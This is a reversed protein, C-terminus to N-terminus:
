NESKDLGSNAEKYYPDIWNFELISFLYLVKLVAVKGAETSQTELPATVATLFWPCHPDQQDKEVM